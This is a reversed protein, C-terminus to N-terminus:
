FAHLPFYQIQPNSFILIHPSYNPFFFVLYDVVLVWLRVGTEKRRLDVEKGKFFFVALFGGEVSGFSATIM